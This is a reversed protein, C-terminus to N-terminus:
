MIDIIIKGLMIHSYTSDPIMSGFRIYYDRQIRTPYYDNVTDYLIYPYELYKKIPRDNIDIDSFQIYSYDIEIKDKRDYCTANFRYIIPNYMFNGGSLDTSNDPICHLHNIDSLIPSKLKEKSNNFILIHVNNYPNIYFDPIFQTASNKDYTCEINYEISNRKSTKLVRIIYYINSTDPNLYIDDFSELLEVSNIAVTEFYSSVRQAQIFFSILALNFILITKLKNMHGTLSFKCDTGGIYRYKTDNGM